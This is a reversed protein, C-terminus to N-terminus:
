GLYKRAIIGLRSLSLFFISCPYPTVTLKNRLPKVKWWDENSDDTVQVRDGPRSLSLQAPPDTELTASKRKGFYMYPMRDSQEAIHVINEPCWFCVEVTMKISRINGFGLKLCVKLLFAVAMHWQLLFIFSKANLWSKAFQASSHYLLYHSIPTNVSLELLYTLVSSDFPQSPWRQLQLTTTWRCAQSSLTDALPHQLRLDSPWVIKWTRKLIFRYMFCVCLFFFQHWQGSSWTMRRRLCFNTFLWMPIFPTFRSGRPPRASPCAYSFLNTSSETKGHVLWFDSSWSTSLTSRKALLSSRAWSLGESQGQGRFRGEREWSPHASSPRPIPPLSVALSCTLPTSIFACSRFTSTVRRHLPLPAFLHDWGRPTFVSLNFVCVSMCVTHIYQIEVSVEGM